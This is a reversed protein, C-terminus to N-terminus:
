TFVIRLDFVQVNKLAVANRPNVPWEQAAKVTLSHHHLIVNARERPVELDVSPRVIALRLGNDGAEM